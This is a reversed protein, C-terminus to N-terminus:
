EHSEANKIATEAIREILGMDLNLDDDANDPNKCIENIRKMDDLLGEAVEKSVLEQTDQNPKNLTFAYDKTHRNILVLPKKITHKM